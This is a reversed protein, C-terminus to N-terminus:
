LGLRRMEEQVERAQAITSQLAETLTRVSAESSDAKLGALEIRTRALLAECRGAQHLLKEERLAQQEILDLRERHSALTAQKLAIRERQAPDERLVEVERELRATESQLAEGNSAHVAQALEFADALSYLGQRYTQEALAGVYSLALPDTEKRRDLIPQLQEFERALGRLARLGKASGITLFGDHLTAQLEEMETSARERREQEQLDIVRRVRSEYERRYRVAYRWLFSAGAVFGSAIGLVIAVLRGVLNPPYLVVYTLSMILLALPVVTAPHQITDSLLERRIAAQSLREVSSLGSRAIRDEFPVNERM